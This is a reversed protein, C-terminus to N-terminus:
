LLFLIEEKLCFEVPLFCVRAQTHMASRSQILGSQMAAHQGPGVRDNAAIEIYHKTIAKYLLVIEM